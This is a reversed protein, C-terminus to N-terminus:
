GLVPAVLASVFEDPTPKGKRHYRALLAILAIERHTYGPLSGNLILYASHKHHDHYDVSVGIDHLMSAAWLIERDAARLDHLEHPLQDFMM